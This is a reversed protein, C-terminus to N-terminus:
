KRRNFGVVQWYLVRLEHLEEVCTSEGSYSRERIKWVLSEEGSTYPFSTQTKLFDTIEFPNSLNIERM